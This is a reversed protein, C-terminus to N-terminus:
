RNRSLNNRSFPNLQKKVLVRPLYPTKIANKKNQLLQLVSYKILLKSNLSIRDQIRYKTLM